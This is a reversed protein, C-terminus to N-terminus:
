SANWRAMETVARGDLLVQLKGIARTVQEKATEETVSLIEATEKLTYDGLWKLAIAESQRRPLCRLAAVLDLHEEVWKDAAAANRLDAISSQLDEHLCSQARAQAELRRLKRTAVKFLWSDPREYTLLSDWRDWAAMFADAAVEEAVDSECTQSILFRILRPWYCEFFEEPSGMRQRAQSGRSSATDAPEDSRAMITSFVRTSDATGAIHDLLNASAAGLLQNLQDDTLKGPRADEDSTGKM